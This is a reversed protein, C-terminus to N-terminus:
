QQSQLNALTVQLIRISFYIFCGQFKLMKTADDVIKYSYMPLPGVRVSLWGEGRWRWLCIGRTIELDRGTFFM